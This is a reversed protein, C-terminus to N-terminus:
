RDNQTEYFLGGKKISLQMTQILVVWTAIDSYPNNKLTIALLIHTCIVWLSLRRFHNIRETSYNPRGKGPLPGILHILVMCTGLILIQLLPDVSFHESVAIAGIFALASFALCGWYTNFHIGGTFPRILQLSLFALTFPLLRDFASAGIALLVFKTSDGVMVQFSYRIKMQDSESLPVNAALYDSFRISMAELM